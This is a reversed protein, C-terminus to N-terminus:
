APSAGASRALKAQRREKVGIVEGARWLIATPLEIGIANATKLVHGV